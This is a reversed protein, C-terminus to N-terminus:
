YGSLRSHPLVTAIRSDWRCSPKKNDYDSYSKTYPRGFKMIIPDNVSLTRVYRNEYKAQYTNVTIIEQFDIL